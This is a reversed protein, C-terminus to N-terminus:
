VSLRACHVNPWPGYHGQTALIGALWKYKGHPSAARNQAIAWNRRLRAVHCTAVPPPHLPVPSILGTLVAGIVQFQFPLGTALSVMWVV